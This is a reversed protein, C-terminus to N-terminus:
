RCTGESVISASAGWRWPGGERSEDDSPRLVVHRGARSAIITKTTPLGEDM